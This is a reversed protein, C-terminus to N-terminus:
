LGSTVGFEKDKSERWTENKGDAIQKVLSAHVEQANSMYEGTLQAIM